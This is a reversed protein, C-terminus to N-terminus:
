PKSNPESTSNRHACDAPDPAPASAFPQSWYTFWSQSSKRYYDHYKVDANPWSGIARFTYFFEALCPAEVRLPTRILLRM